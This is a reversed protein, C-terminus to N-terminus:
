NTKTGEKIHWEKKNKEAFEIVKDSLNNYFEKHEKYSTSLKNYNLRGFIIKDVFKITELIENFDQEIINPTPYPEISVWTKFGADHM